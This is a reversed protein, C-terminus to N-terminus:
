LRDAPIQMFSYLSDIQIQLVDVGVRSGLHQLVAALLPENLDIIGRSIRKSGGTDVKVQAHIYREYFLPRDFSTQTSSPKLFIM